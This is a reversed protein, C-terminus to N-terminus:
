LYVLHEGSDTDNVLNYIILKDNL